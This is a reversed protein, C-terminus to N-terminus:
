GLSDLFESLPGDPVQKLPYTYETYMLDPLEAYLAQLVTIAEPNNLSRNSWDDFEMQIPNLEDHVQLVLDDVTKHRCPDGPTTPNCFGAKSVAGHVKEKDKATTLIISATM